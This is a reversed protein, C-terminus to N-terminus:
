SALWSVLKTLLYGNLQTGNWWKLNQAVECFAGQEVPPPQITWDPLNYMGGYLACQEVVPASSATHEVVAAISFLSHCQEIVAPERKWWALEEVVGARKWWVLEKVVSLERKWWVLEKVVGLERKRWVLSERGGCWSKWWLLSERGGCWSEKMVGAREEVVGARKWWVLERKWGVLERGGCWM